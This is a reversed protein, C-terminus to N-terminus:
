ALDIATRSDAPAHLEGRCRRASSSIQSVNQGAPSPSGSRRRSSPTRIRDSAAMAAVRARGLLALQGRQEDSHSVGSMPGSPPPPQFRNLPM